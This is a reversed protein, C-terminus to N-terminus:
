YNGFYKRLGWELALLALFIFFIWRETILSSTNTELIQLSKAETNNLLELRLDELDESKYFKGGAEKSINRLLQHRAVLDSQEIQNREVVFSGAQTFTEDGLVASSRYKYIGVPLRGANLRYTNQAKSFRFDFEKGQIDTFTIKLEPVNTLELSSNYLRAEARIPETADFRESIDVIFRREQKKTTLFQITKYILADFSKFNKQQRYNEIRWRWIGTGLTFAKRVDDQTYFWLPDTTVVNGVKKTFFPYVAMSTIPKGFPSWLPPLDTLLDREDESLSFLNFLQAPSAQVEEFSNTIGKIGFDKDLDALPTSPGQFIWVPTKGKGFRELVNKNPDHLIFLDAKVVDTPLDEFIYTQLEYKEVSKLANSLAAMDPHPGQGIIAVKKKNNLIDVSFERYNNAKNEEGEVASINVKFRQVGTKEAKVFLDVRKFYDNSTIQEKQTFLVKGIEDTISLTYEREKLERAKVYVEVPFNNNLYSTKNSVVRDILIDESSTTDGFGVTYLGHNFGRSAYLPNNGVNSIGDSLIVVAGVNQNYYREKVDNLAEYLDTTTSKFSDSAVTVEGGFDLQDIEYKDQLSELFQEDSLLSRVKQSDGNIIMSRSHDELWVLIPKEENLESSKILPSLLLIGLLSFILFRLLALVLRQSRNFTKGRFYLVWALLASLILIPLVWISPSEFIIQM